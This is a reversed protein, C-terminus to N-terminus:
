FKSGKLHENAYRKAIEELYVAIEEWSERSIYPRASSYISAVTDVVSQLGDVLQFLTELDFLGLFIFVPYDTM